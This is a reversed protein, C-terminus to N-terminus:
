GYHASGSAITSTLGDLIVAARALGVAQVGDDRSILLTLRNTHHAAVASALVVVAATRPDADDLAGREDDGEANVAADPDDPNLDAEM